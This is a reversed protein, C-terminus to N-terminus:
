SYKRYALFPQCFEIRCLKDRLLANLFTGLLSSSGPFPINQTSSGIYLCRTCAMVAGLLGYSRRLEMNFLRPLDESRVMAGDDFRGSSLAFEEKAVSMNVAAASRSVPRIVGEVIPLALGAVFYSHRHTM